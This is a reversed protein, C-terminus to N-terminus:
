VVGVWRRAVLDPPDGLGIRDPLATAASNLSLLGRVSTSQIGHMGKPLRLEPFNPDKLIALTEHSPMSM